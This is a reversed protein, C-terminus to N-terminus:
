IFVIRGTQILKYQQVCLSATNFELICAVIINKKKRLNFVSCLNVQTETKLLDERLVM